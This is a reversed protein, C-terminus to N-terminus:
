KKAKLYIDLGAYKGIMNLAKKRPVVFRQFLSFDDCNEKNFKISSYKEFIKKLRSISFFETEPAATGDPSVDYAAVQKVSAKRYLIDGALDKFLSKFTPLPWKVWQRLSHQNYVMIYAKGGPRLIRFIENVCKQIDGTHHLCGITVVCDFSADDIPANLIDGQIAKAKDTVGQQRIRHNMMSVPGAAIDLGTYTKAKSCAIKQGVSGYGLGIELVEKNGFKEIPIHKELYPYFDYFWDDFIKLSEASDDKIGLLNVAAVTGCLQDWFKSNEESINKEMM